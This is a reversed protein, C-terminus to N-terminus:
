YEGKVLDQIGIERATFLVGYAHKLEVFKVDVVTWATGALMKSATRLVTTRTALDINQFAADIYLVAYEVINSSEKYAKTLANLLDERMHITASSITISNRRREADYSFVLGGDADYNTIAIARAKSLRSM